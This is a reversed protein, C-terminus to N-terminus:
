FEFQSRWYICWKLTFKWLLLVKNYFSALKIPIQPRVSQLFLNWGTHDTKFSQFNNVEVIKIWGIQMKIESTECGERVNWPSSRVNWALKLTLRWGFNFLFLGVHYSRYFRLCIVGSRVKEYWQYAGFDLNDMDDKVGLHYQKPFVTIFWTDLRWHSFLFKFMSIESFHWFKILFWCICITLPVLNITQLWFFIGFVEERCVQRRTRSQGSNTGM